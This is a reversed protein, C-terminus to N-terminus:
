GPVLAELGGSVVTIGHSYFNNPNLIGRDIHDRLRPQLQEHDEPVGRSEHSPHNAPLLANFLRHFKGDRIFGVDGVEVPPAQKGPDPEWLAHGFAPYAIALQDRFHSPTVHYRDPAIESQLLSHQQLAMSHLSPIRPHPLDKGGCDCVRWSHM